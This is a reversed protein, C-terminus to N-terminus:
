PRRPATQALFPSPFPTIGPSTPRKATRAGDATVVYLAAAVLLSPPFALSAVDLLVLDVVAMVGEFLARDFRLSPLRPTSDLPLAAVGADRPLATATPGRSPVGHAPALQLAIRAAPQFTAPPQGAHSPLKMLRDGASAPAAAAASNQSPAVRASDEAAAALQHIYWVAWTYPTSPVLHWDLHQHASDRSSPVATHRQVAGGVELMAREMTVLDVTSYAGDCTAVFESM